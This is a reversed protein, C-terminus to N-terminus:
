HNIKLAELADGGEERRRWAHHENKLPNSLFGLTHM